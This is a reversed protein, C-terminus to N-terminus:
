RRPDGSDPAQVLPDHTVIGDIVEDGRLIAYGSRGSGERWSAEPACFTWIQDEAGMRTRIERWCERYRRITALDEGEHSPAPSVPFDDCRERLWERPPIVSQYGVERADGRLVEISRIRKPNVRVLGKNVLNRIHEHVTSRSRYGFRRAIEEYTPSYGNDRIYTTLYDILERQKRTLTM